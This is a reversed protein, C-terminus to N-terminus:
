RRTTTVEKGEMKVFILGLYEKGKGKPPIHVNSGLFWGRGFLLLDGGGSIFPSGGGFKKV